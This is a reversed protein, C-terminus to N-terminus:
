DRRVQDGGLEGAVVGGVQHPQNNHQQPPPTPQMQVHQQQQGVL